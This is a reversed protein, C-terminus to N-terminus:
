GIKGKLNELTNISHKCRIFEVLKFERIRVNSHIKELDIKSVCLTAPVLLLQLVLLVRM